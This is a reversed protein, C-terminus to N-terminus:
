RRVFLGVSHSDEVVVDLAVPVPTCVTTAAVISVLEIRPRQHIPM